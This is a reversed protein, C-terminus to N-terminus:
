SPMALAVALQVPEPVLAEALVQAVTFSPSGLPFFLPRRRFSLVLYHLMFMCILLLQWGILAVNGPKLQGFRM